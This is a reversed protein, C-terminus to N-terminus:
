DCRDTHSRFVAFSVDTHSWCQCQHQRRRALSHEGGVNAVNEFPIKRADTTRKIRSENLAHANSATTVVGDVLIKDKRSHM